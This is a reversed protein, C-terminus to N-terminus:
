KWTIVEILSIERNPYSLTKFSLLPSKETIWVIRFGEKIDEKILVIVPFYGPQIVRAPPCTRRFERRLEDLVLQEFTSM